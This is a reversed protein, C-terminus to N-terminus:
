LEPQRCRQEASIRRMSAYWDRTRLKVRQEHEGYLRVHFVSALQRDEAESWDLRFAVDMRDLTIGYIVDGSGQGGDEGGEGAAAATRARM